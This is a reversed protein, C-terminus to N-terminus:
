QLPFQPLKELFGQFLFCRFSCSNKSLCYHEEFLRLFHLKDSTRNEHWQSWAVRWQGFAECTSVAASQLLPDNMFDM